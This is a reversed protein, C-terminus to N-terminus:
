SWTVEVDSLEQGVSYQQGLLMRGAATLAAHARLDPANSIVTLTAFPEFREASIVSNTRTALDGSGQALTIRPDHMEVRMAGWHGTLIASGRFQIIGEGTEQDFQTATEDAVFEFTNDTFSAGNTTDIQGDEIKEIYALLSEKISWRLTPSGTM